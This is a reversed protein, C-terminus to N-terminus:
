VACVFFCNRCLIRVKSRGFTLSRIAVLAAETLRHDDNSWKLVDCFLRITKTHWVLNAGHLKLANLRLERQLGAKPMELIRTATSSIKM